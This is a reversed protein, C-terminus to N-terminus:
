RPSEMSLPAQHAVTWQTPFHPVYSLLQTHVCMKKKALFISFQVTKLKQFSIDTKEGNGLEEMHKHVTKKKKKKFEYAKPSFLIAM